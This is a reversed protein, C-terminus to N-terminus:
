AEESRRGADLEARSSVYPATRPVCPLRITVSTGMGLKSYISVGYPKGYHLEIRQHVNRIGYGAEEGDDFQSIRRLTDPTMGVGDDIIRFEIDDGIRRGAVRIHVRDGTWAHKLVNELFPQLVLKVMEYRLLEPDIEFLVDLRDTYKVKQIDLYAKAQELENAVPIITRGENLSLRYFLALNSVMRHLQEVQGFKALLSISSLTNYLFHPNIQAQLSELEAEKKKIGAVYVQQILGDIHEAMANISQSITSFEDKGKFRIRKHFSGHRFSDLVRVIRSVRKSFYRSLFGGVGLFLLFSASGIVATLVKVKKADKEVWEKPISAVLKWDLDQFPETITLYNSEGIQAIRGTTWAGREFLIQGKGDEIRVSTGEGFDPSVTEFMETLKVTLRMFGFDSQRGFSATDVLRRLLSINGFEADRDIQQWQMTVGYREPPFVKYWSNDAIRKLYLMNYSKGAYTLPDSDNYFSYIEPLTENRLYVVLWIRHNTAKIVSDFKPELYQTVSEYGYYGENLRRLRSAVTEDYYIMDSLRVTDKMRYEINDKMQRLAAQVNESTQKRVSDVFIWNALYGFLIVHVLTLLMYSLMLKYGFPMYRPEAESAAANNRRSQRLTSRIRSNAM